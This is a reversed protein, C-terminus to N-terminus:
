LLKDFCYLSYLSNVSNRNRLPLSVKCLDGPRVAKCLEGPCISTPELDARVRQVNRRAKKETEDGLPGSSGSVYARNGSRELWVMVGPSGDVPTFGCADCIKLNAITTKTM